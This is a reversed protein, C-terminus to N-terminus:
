PFTWAEHYVACEQNQSKGTSPIEGRNELNGTVDALMALERFRPRRESPRLAFTTVDNRRQRGSRHRTALNYLETATM